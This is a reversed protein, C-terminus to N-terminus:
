SQEEKPKRPESGRAMGRQTPPLLGAKRCRWVWSAAANKKLDFHKQVAATPNQGNKYAESYVQAAKRLDEPSLPRRGLKKPVGELSEELVEATRQDLQAVEREVAEPSLPPRGFLAGDILRRLNEEQDPTPPESDNYAHMLAGPLLSAAYDLLDSMKIIDLDHRQLPRVRAGPAFDIGLGICEWRDDLMRWKVTIWLHGTKANPWPFSVDQTDLGGSVYDEANGENWDM